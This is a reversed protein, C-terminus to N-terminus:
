ADAAEEIPLADMDARLALCPGPRDHNLIAVVDTEIMPPYLKLGPLAQLQQRVKRATDHEQFCREPHAHLDRRLETVTPLVSEIYSTLLDSM